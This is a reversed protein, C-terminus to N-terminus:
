RLNAHDVLFECILCSSVLISDNVEEGDGTAVAAAVDGDCYLGSGIVPSDGVRGPYKYKWGSTSTGASLRGSRDLCIVGVTDHNDNEAPLMEPIVKEQEKHAVEVLQSLKWEYYEKEMKQTLINEKLFGNEIAWDLAGKGTLINHPSKELVTRAVSIPRAINPIAMVAGYRFEHDMIAADLEMIGNKNPYGGVGVFYQGNTDLEVSNIGHEIADLANGGNQIIPIMTKLAIKGFSWTAAISPKFSHSPIQFEESM